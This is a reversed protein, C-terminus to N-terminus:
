ERRKPNREALPARTVSAERKRFPIDSAEDAPPKIGRSYRWGIFLRGVIYITAAVSAGLLLYDPITM